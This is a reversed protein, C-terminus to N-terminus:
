RSYKQKKQGGEDERGVYRAITIYM